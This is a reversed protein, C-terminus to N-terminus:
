GAEDGCVRKVEEITTRGEVAKQLGDEFLTLFGQARAISFLKQVSAGTVIAERLEDELKVIEAVAIRGRYGTGECADCGVATRWRMTSPTQIPAGDSLAQMLLKEGVESHEEVACDDCLKRVLRQAMLGRVCAGILFPELGIDELRTVAALASNTHLTSLVFHGTLSAQAAIRATEGDRIEGVMIVDPDQRLIARLGNAFDYGIEPKVQIQTIGSIDYEVPDEITIIKRYGDDISELGRYLTTSKGSGTPGTVLMVGNPSKLIEDLVAGTRGTLGLGELDPLEAQKRLLRMVLSEGWTSPVSSIRLDIDNGAFRVTHRGDQPLRREAIDMGGILKIRSAIADFRARSQTQRAHLVGDIRYRVVFSHEFAEVHVDSANEKMATALLNNVFDIVPAEEAMERLRTVDALEDDEDTESVTRQIRALCMDILQNSALLYEIIVPGIAVARDSDSDDDRDGADDDNAPKVAARRMVEVELRERLELNLPDAAIVFLIQPEDEEDGSPPEFWVVARHALFWSAPLNLIQAADTFASLSDPLLHAAAVPLDLQDSLAELLAEETVAGLRQLAQGLLGGVEAQMALAQALDKDSILGREKLLEGIPTALTLTDSESKISLMYM